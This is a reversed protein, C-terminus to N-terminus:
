IRCYIHSMATDHPNYDPDDPVFIENLIRPTEIDSVFWLKGFGM